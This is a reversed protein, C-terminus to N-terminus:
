AAEAFPQPEKAPGQAAADAQKKADAAKEVLWALLKEPDLTLEQTFLKKNSNLCDTAWQVIHAQNDPDVVPLLVELAAIVAKLKVDEAKAQESEPETLLNPWTAAFSNRWAYFVENYSKGGYIEPFEKQITKYFEENWARHMVIRDFFDYLPQMEERFRDIYSAINKADEVGEGFGSVMTENELLKAPMDAATAINKLINTRAFAGAGDINQLNLSEITETEEVTIVNGTVAEKLIARKIGAMAQMVNDIISGVAKLKAVLLGAKKSIMDDTAMTQVFSKLPFLARQYASRGSFGFASSTYSIYIPRENMVVVTRSRHYVTGQVAIERHKQFDMANPNQNFVLSGSTNLPDFVNFAIPKEALDKLNVATSPDTGDTLLALSAIGYVRSQAKVNMIHADAGIRRWEAEFAEKAREGPSDKVTIIRKQSQAMAIPSEAIKAGLPHYLYIIKALQYSPEDGPLLDDALLLSQLSNGLSSGNLTVSGTM